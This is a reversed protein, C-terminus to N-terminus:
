LTVEIFPRIRLPEKSTSESGTAPAPTMANRVAFFRALKLLTYLPIYELSRQACPVSGTGAM